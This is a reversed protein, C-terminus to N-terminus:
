CRFPCGRVAACAFGLVIAALVANRFIPRADIAEFASGLFLSWGVAPLYLYRSGELSNGIFLYGLTPAAAAVCWLLAGLALIHMNTRRNALILSAAALTLAIGGLFVGEIPHASLTPVTLPVSLTAFTRSLHEKLAYRSVSGVGALPLRLLVRSGVYAASCLGTVIFASAWHRTSGLTRWSAAAAIAILIPLVVATEKSLLSLVSLGSLLATRRWGLAPGSSLCVLVATLVGATMLLDFIGATWVVPEVQTPWLMFSVAAILSGRRGVGFHSALSFVLATNAAHLAINIGHLLAPGGGLTLVFGWLALPVPRAFPYGAPLFQARVAWDRLVYDDSLLGVNFAPLYSLLAGASLLVYYVWASPPVRAAASGEPLV